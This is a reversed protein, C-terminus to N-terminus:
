LVRMMAAQSDWVSGLNKVDIRGAAVFAVSRTASDGVSTSDVVDGVVTLATEILWAGVDTSVSRDDALGDVVGRTIAANSLHNRARLKTSPSSSTM